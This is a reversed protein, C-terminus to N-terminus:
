TKSNKKIRSLTEPTIGLYSAIYKDKIRGIDLTAEKHYNLLGKYREQADQTLLDHTRRRENSFKQKDAISDFARLQRDAGLREEYVDMPIVYVISDELAQIYILDPNCAATVFTNEFCFWFTAENGRDDISYGRFLGRAVYALYNSPKHPSSYFEGVKYNVKKAISAWYDINEDSLNGRLKEIRVVTLLDSDMAMESVADKERNLPSESNTPIYWIGDIRTAREIRGKICLEVVVQGPVGWM